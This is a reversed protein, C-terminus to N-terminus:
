FHYENFSPNFEDAKFVPNLIFNTFEYKEYLGKEDYIFQAFPLFYVKDVLVIIKQAYGNPVRLQMGAKVDDYFNIKPNISLIMYDSVNLKRAISSITEGKLATYTIYTFNKNDMVLKYMKKGNWDVEGDYTLSQYFKEGDKKIQNKIIDGIYNYGLDYLTHHQDKRLLANNPNLNLNVFPFSNPHVLADGNVKDKIFLVESGSNPQINYVYVKYPSNQLKARMETDILKNNIREQKKLSYKATKVNDIALLMKGLITKATQSQGNSMQSNLTGILFLLLPILKLKM